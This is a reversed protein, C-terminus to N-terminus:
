EETFGTIEMNIVLSLVEVLEDKTKYLPLDMRNFCTHARPYATDSYPVGQLTFPCLQDDYSVLAKFGQIPVRSSGTVFQLLRARDECQMESVAEWFWDLVPSSQLDMSAVTNEKWDTVDIDPVGCLVLELEQYDFVMLM